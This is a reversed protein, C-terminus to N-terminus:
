NSLVFPYTVTTSAGTAPFGLPRMADAFCSLFREEALTPGDAKAVPSQVHGEADIAFELTVKGAATADRTRLADYCAKFEKRGARIVSQIEKPRLGSQLKVSIPDEPLKSLESLAKEVESIQGVRPAAILLVPPAAERQKVAILGQGSAIREEIERVPMPLYREYRAPIPNAIKDYYFVALSTDFAEGYKPISVWSGVRSQHTHVRPRKECLPCDALARDHIADGVNFTGLQNSPTDNGGVQVIELDYNGKADPHFSDMLARAFASVTAREYVDPREPAPKGTVLKALREGVEEERAWLPDKQHSSLLEELTVIAAETKGQLEYTRSLAMAAEDREDATGSKALEKLLAESGPTVKGVDLSRQAAELKQTSESVETPAPEGPQGPGSSEASCAALALTSVVTLKRFHFRNM